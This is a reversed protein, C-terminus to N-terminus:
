GHSCKSVDALKEKIKGTMLLNKAQNFGEELDPSIGCHWLYFGGNWIAADTLKSSKGQLIDQMQEILRNSSKLPVDQNDFGYDKAKLLLRKFENNAKSFGIIATRGLPLDCSGELGKITTYDSVGKLALAQRINDETPPHVFGAMIHVNEWSPSWILELTAFPPRKGIQDRYEVLKYALPFQKPLYIFTLGTRDLLRAVQELSLNSFDAGLKQWIEILPVGYKTPMSDGGHLIVPLGSAALILATIPTVPATRSRGDYPTGLVITKRKINLKPGLKQYADLMGALEQGTPRKIRHAIMFAGIQAPTAQELLMMTTAAEAESRTLNEGTHTGSGIKKLLERFESSM